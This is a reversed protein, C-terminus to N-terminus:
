KLKKSIKIIKNLHKEAQKSDLAENLKDLIYDSDIFEDSSAKLAFLSNLILIDRKAGKEKGSFLDKIIQANFSPNKGEILKKNSLKFGYDKPNIEKYSIKNNELIAIKSNSSISIEDMGDNSNVIYAKKINLNLLVKAIKLLYKYNFVGLFYRQINAPNTLPGLINFITRHPISKRIPMIHKMAPHYNKAFLFCFNSEEVMKIQNNESLNLNIGLENFLDASGSKSTISSNGHKVVPIDLSSLLLAVTSSINFSNSYDGGTGVIDIAKDKIYSPIKLQKSYQYMIQSAITIDEVSEGRNHLDILLKRGEELSLDNKFLKEFEVEISM